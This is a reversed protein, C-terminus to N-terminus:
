GMGMRCFQALGGVQAFSWEGSGIDAFTYIPIFSLQDTNFLYVATPTCVYTANRFRFTTVDKSFFLQEYTLLQSGFDAKPGRLDLSFNRGDLCYLKQGASFLSEKLNYIASRADLAPMLGKIAAVEITKAPM